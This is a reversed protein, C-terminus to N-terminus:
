SSSGEHPATPQLFHAGAWHEQFEAPFSASIQRIHFDQLTPRLSRAPGHRHVAVRELLGRKIELNRPLRKSSGFEAEACWALNDDFNGSAHNAAPLRRAYFIGPSSGGARRCPWRPRPDQNRVRPDTLALGRAKEEPTLETPAIDLLSCPVGANALHAAIRAGMTGAGLVAVKEIRAKM